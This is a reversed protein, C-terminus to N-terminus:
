NPLTIPNTIDAVMVIVGFLILVGFVTATVAYLPEYNVAGIPHKGRSKRLSDRIAGYANIVIHGGDFPPLPILNFLALFYNLSALILLFQPWQNEQALQGGVHSAGVISVPGQTDREQKGAITNLTPLIYSPLKAIGEISAQMVYASYSSAHSFADQPNTSPPHYPLQNSKVQIGIKGDSDPTIDTTHPTDDRIYEVPITQEPHQAVVNSIENYVEIPTDAVAVILDHQQLGATDAPSNATVNDVVPRMDAGPNPIPSTFALLLVIAFGILLNMTIGALMVIVRQYLPQAYMPTDGPEPDNVTMGAIDCYGGFPLAKLAYTTTQPTNKPTYSAITPGMGIAYTRVRMGFSKAAAMHGAEHLAISAAIGLAFVIIGIVLM